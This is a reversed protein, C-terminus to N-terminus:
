KGIAQLVANTITGVSLFIVTVAQLALSRLCARADGVPPFMLMTVPRALVTLGVACPVAIVLAMRAANVSRRRTEKLDGSAHATAINPIIAASVATAVSM